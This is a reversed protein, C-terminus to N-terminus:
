RFFRAIRQWYPMIMKQLWFEKKIGEDVNGLGRILLYILAERKLLEDLTTEDWDHNLSYVYVSYMLPVSGILIEIMGYWFLKRKKVRYLIVASGFVGLCISLSYLINDNYFAKVYSGILSVPVVILALIYITRKSYHPEPM